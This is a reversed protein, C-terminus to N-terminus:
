GGPVVISVTGANMSMWTCRLSGPCVWLPSMSWSVRAATAPPKRVTRAMGLVRGGGSEGPRRRSNRSSKSRFPCQRTSRQPQMVRSRAPFAGTSAWANFSAPATASESSPEVVWSVPTM